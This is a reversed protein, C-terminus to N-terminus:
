RRGKLTPIEILSEAFAENLANEEFANLTRSNKFFSNAISSITFQRSDFIEQTEFLDNVFDTTNYEVNYIQSVSIYDTFIEVDKKIVSVSSEYNLLCSISEGFNETTSDPTIFPLM